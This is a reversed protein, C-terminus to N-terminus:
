VPDGINEKLKSIFSELDFGSSAIRKPIVYYLGLAVYLLVLEDDHSWHIINRWPVLGQFDVGKFTIGDMELKLYAQDKFSKYSRYQRKVQWPTYIFRCVLDVLTYGVFAGVTTSRVLHSTSVIFIAIVVVAFGGYFLKGNKTIKASLKYAKCYEAESIEYEVEM